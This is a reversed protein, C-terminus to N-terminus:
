EGTVFRQLLLVLRKIERVGLNGLRTALTEEALSRARALAETAGPRLHLVQTRRDWELRRREVLGRQELQDVMQVVSAGSIGLRRGVEAQPVPGLTALTTLLGFQAPVIGLPALVESFARHM